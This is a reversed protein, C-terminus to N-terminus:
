SILWDLSGTYKNEEGLSGPAGLYGIYIFLRQKDTQKKALFEFVVGCILGFNQTYM